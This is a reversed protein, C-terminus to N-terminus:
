SSDPFYGPVTKIAGRRSSHKSPGTSKPLRKSKSRARWQDDVEEDKGCKRKYQRKQRTKMKQSEDENSPPTSSTSEQANSQSAM